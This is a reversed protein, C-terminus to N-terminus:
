IDIRPRQEPLVIASAPGAPPVVIAPESPSVDAADPSVTTVSGAAPMAAGIAVPPAAGVAVDSLAEIRAASDASIPAQLLGCICDILDNTYLVRQAAFQEPSSAHEPLAYSQILLSHFMTGNMLRARRLRLFEPADPISSYIVPAIVRFSRPPHNFLWDNLPHVPSSALQAMIRLYHVGGDEDDLFAALPRVMIGVAQHLTVAKTPDLEAVLAARAADLRDRHKTLLAKLLGEKSGFHYHLASKNRQGAARNIESLSVGDIGRDAFLREAASILVAQTRLSDSRTPAM